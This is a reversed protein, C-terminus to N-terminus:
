KITRTIRNYKHNCSIAKNETTQKLVKESRVQDKGPMRVKKM